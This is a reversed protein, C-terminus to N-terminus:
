SALARCIRHLIMGYIRPLVPAPQGATPCVVVVTPSSTATKRHHGSGAVGSEGSRHSVARRITM